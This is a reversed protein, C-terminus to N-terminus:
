ERQHSNPNEQVGPLSSVDIAVTWTVTVRSRKWARRPRKEVLCSLSATGGQRITVRGAPIKGSSIRRSRLSEVLRGRKGYRRNLSVKRWSTNEVRLSEILEDAAKKREEREIREVVVERIYRSWKISVSAM